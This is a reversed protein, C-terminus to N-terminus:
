RTIEVSSKKFLVRKFIKELFELLRTTIDNSIRNRFTLWLKEKLLYFEHM